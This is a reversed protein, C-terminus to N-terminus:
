CSSTSINCLSPHLKTLQLNQKKIAVQHPPMICSTYVVICNTQPKFDKMQHLVKWKVHNWKQIVIFQIHIMLILGKEYNFFILFLVYDLECLHLFFSSTTDLFPSKPRCVGMESCVGSVNWGVNGSLTQCFALPICQPIPIHKTFLLPLKAYNAIIMCQSWFKTIPNLQGVCCPNIHKTSQVHHIATSEFCQCTLTFM